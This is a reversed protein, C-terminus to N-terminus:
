FKEELVHVKHAGQDVVWVREGSVCMGGLCSGFTLVQLPVGALTLVQARRGGYESVVLVGRLVAEGPVLTQSGRVVAIGWPTKFQGPDDGESGFARRFEMRGNSGLSLIQPDLTRPHLLPHSYGREPGHRQTTHPHLAAM